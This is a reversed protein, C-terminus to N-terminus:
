CKGFEWDIFVFSSVVDVKEYLLISAGKLYDVLWVAEM